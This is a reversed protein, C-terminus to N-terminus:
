ILCIGTMPQILTEENKTQARLEEVKTWFNRLLPLKNEFWKKDRKVENCNVRLLSWYVTDTIIKEKTILSNVTEEHWTLLVENEKHNELPSYSYDLKGEHMYEIIIGKEHKYELTVFEDKSHTVFNCEFFHTIDLDLVEMQLQMQEYYLKSIHGDVVRSTPCKIEINILDNTVGDTSAGIFPYEQHKILGYEYTTRGTRFCYVMNALPEYLEGYTTYINKVNKSYKGYYAKEEIMSKVTKSELKDTIKAVVSATICEHRANLWEDSKQETMSRNKYTELVSDCYDQSKIYEHPLVPIGNKHEKNCLKCLSNEVLLDYICCTHTMNAEASIFVVNKKEFIQPPSIKKNKEGEFFIKSTHKKNEEMEVLIKKAFDTPISRKVVMTIKKM